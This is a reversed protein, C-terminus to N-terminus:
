NLKNEPAKVEEFVVNQETPKESSDYSTACGNPGCCGVNFIAMALFGGGFLLSMYNHVQFGQIIIFVALAARLVRMFHWGQLIRAM